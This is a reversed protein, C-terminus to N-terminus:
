ENTLNITINVIDLNSNTGYTFSKINLEEEHENVFMITSDKNKKENDELIKIINKLEKLTIM